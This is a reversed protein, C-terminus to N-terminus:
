VYATCESGEWGCNSDPPVTTVSCDPSASHNGPTCQGDGGGGYVGEIEEETISGFGSFGPANEFEEATISFGAEKAVAVVSDTGASALRRQLEPDTRLAMLFKQLQEESM